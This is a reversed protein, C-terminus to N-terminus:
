VSPDETNLRIPQGDITKWAPKGLSPCSACRYADGLSCNGCGGTGEQQAQKEAVEQQALGCTCNKCAKRPGTNSGCDFQKSSVDADDNLLTSEDVVTSKVEPNIGWSSNQPVAEAVVPAEIPKATNNKNHRIVTYTVIDNETTTNKVSLGAFILARKANKISTPAIVTFQQDFPITPLLGIFHNLTISPQQRLDFELSTSM